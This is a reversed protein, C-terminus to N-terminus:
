HWIKLNQLTNTKLFGAEGQWDRACSLRRNWLLVLWVRSIIPQSSFSFLAEANVSTSEANQAKQLLLLITKWCHLPIMSGLRDLTIHDNLAPLPICKRPSELSWPWLCLLAQFHLPIGLLCTHVHSPLSRHPIGKWLGGDGWESSGCSIWGLRLYGSLRCAEMAFPARPVEGSPAIIDLVPFHVCLLYFTQIYKATCYNSKQPNEKACHTCEPTCHPQTSVSMAMNCGSKRVTNKSGVHWGHWCDGPSKSALPAVTPAGQSPASAEWDGETVGWGTRVRGKEEGEELVGEHHTWRKVEEGNRRRKKGQLTGGMDRETFWTNM